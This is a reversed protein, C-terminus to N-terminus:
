KRNWECQRGVLARGWGSVSDVLSRGGLGVVRERGAEARTILFSTLTVHGPNPVNTNEPRTREQM